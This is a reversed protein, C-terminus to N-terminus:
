APVINWEISYQTSLLTPPQGNGEVWKELQLLGPRTHQAASGFCHGAAAGEGLHHLKRVYARHEAHATEL